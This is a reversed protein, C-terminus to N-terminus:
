AITDMPATSDDDPHPPTSRSEDCCPVPPACGLAGLEPPPEVGTFPECPEVGTFPEPPEANGLSGESALTQGGPLEYWHPM